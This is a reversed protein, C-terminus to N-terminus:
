AQFPGAEELSALCEAMLMVVVEAVLVAQEVLLHGTEVSMTQGPQNAPVIEPM